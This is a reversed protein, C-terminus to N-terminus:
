IDDEKTFPGLEQIKEVMEVIVEVAKRAESASIGVMIVREKEIGFSKLMEQVLHFRGMTKYNGDQYHCDGAHCMSIIM